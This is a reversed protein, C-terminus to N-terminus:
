VPRLDFHSALILFSSRRGLPQTHVKYGSLPLLERFYARYM